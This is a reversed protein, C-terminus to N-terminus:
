IDQQGIPYTLVKIGQSEFAKKFTLDTTVLDLNIKKHLTTNKNEPIFSEYTRLQRLTQGFSKIKTKVEIYKPPINSFEYTLEFHGNKHVVDKFRVVIDVYGIIFKNGGFLPLESIIDVSNKIDNEFAHGWLVDTFIETFEIKLLDWKDMMFKPFNFRNNVEKEDYDGLLLNSLKDYNLLDNFYIDSHRDKLPNKIFLDIRPHEKLNQMSKFNDKKIDYISIINNKNLLWIVMEDHKPTTLTEDNLEWLKETTTYRDKQGTIIVM